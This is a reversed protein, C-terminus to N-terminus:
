VAHPIIVNETESHRILATKANDTDCSHRKVNDYNSQGCSTPFIAIGIVDTVYMNGNWRNQSSSVVTYGGNTAPRTIFPSIANISNLLM